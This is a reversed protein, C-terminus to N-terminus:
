SHPPNTRFDNAGLRALDTEGHVWSARHDFAEEGRDFAVVM